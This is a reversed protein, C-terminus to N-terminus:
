CIPYQKRDAEPFMERANVRRERERQTHTHTHTHAPLCREECGGSGHFWSSLLCFFVGWVMLIVGRGWYIMVDGVGGLLWVGRMGGAGRRGRGVSWVGM